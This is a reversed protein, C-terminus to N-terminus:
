RDIEERAAVIETAGRELAAMPNGAFGARRVKFRLEEKTLMYLRVISQLHLTKGRKTYDHLIYM